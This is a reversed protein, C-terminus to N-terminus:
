FSIRGSFRVIRPSQTEFITNTGTSLSAQKLRANRQLVTNYNLVNFMEAALTASITSTIPINKELRLDVQSVSGYRDREITTVYIRRSLRDSNLQPNRTTDIVYYAIPYGQRIFFNGAVTFGLPLQYAGSLNAQWKANLNVFGFAGSGGGANPAVIGGDECAGPVSDEGSSYFSNNPDLCGGPGVQQKANNYAFSGRAM